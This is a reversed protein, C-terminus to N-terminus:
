VKNIGLRFYRIQLYFQPSKGYTLKFYHVLALFEIDYVIGTAKNEKSSESNNNEKYLEKLIDSLDQNVKNQNTEFAVPKTIHIYKITSHQIGKYICHHQRKIIMNDLHNTQYVSSYYRIKQAFMRESRSIDYAPLYFNSNICEPQTSIKSRVNWYCRALFQKSIFNSNM